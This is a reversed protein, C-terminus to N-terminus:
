VRELIKSLLHPNLQVRYVAAEVSHVSELSDEHHYNDSLQRLDFFYKEDYQEYLM